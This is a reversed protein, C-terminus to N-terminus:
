YYPLTWYNKCLDNFLHSLGLCFVTNDFLNREKKFAFVFKIGHVLGEISSAFLFLYILCKKRTQQSIIHVRVILMDFAYPHFFQCSGNVKM